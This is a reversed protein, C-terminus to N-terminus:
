DSESTANGTSTKKAKMECKDSKQNNAWSSALTKRNRSESRDQDQHRHRLTRSGVVVKNVDM